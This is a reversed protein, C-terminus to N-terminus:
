QARAAEAVRLMEDVSLFGRLMQEGLVFTPTGNIRLAQGLSINADIVDTVEPSDMEALVKDTPLGLGDSIRRLATETVEGNFALLTDHVTKYADDGANQRVSIAFRSALTSQEGLIPFEKVIIKINADRELLEEIEPAARRCFGCRYDIFEVLTLDGSPNGGVWSTPDDFLKTANQRVLDVDARMQAQAERQELVQVAEMIVDPNELLYDRIESRFIEREADSMDSLDVAGAPMALCLATAILLPSRISLM